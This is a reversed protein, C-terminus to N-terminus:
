LESFQSAPSEFSPELNMASTEVLKKGDDTVSPSEDASPAAAQETDNTRVGSM